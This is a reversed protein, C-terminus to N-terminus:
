HELVVTVFHIKKIHFYGYRFFTVFTNVNVSTILRFFSFVTSILLLSFSKCRSLPLRKWRQFYFIQVDM